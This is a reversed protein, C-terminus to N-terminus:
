STRSPYWLSTANDYCFDVFTGATTPTGGVAINGLANWPAVADFILKVCGGNGTSAFTSPATITQITTTGTIHVIDSTPAITTASAIATGVFSVYLVSAVFTARSGVKGFSAVKDGQTAFSTSTLLFINGLNDAKFYIQNGNILIGNNNIDFYSCDTNGCKLVMDNGFTLTTSTLAFKTAGAIGLNIGTTNTSGITMAGSTTLDVTNLTFVYNGTSAGGGGSTTGSSFNCLLVTTSTASCTIVDTANPTTSLTPATGGGLWTFDTGYTLTRSGTADQTILWQYTHGAKINTPNALTHNGTLTDAFTNGLAADTAISAGDTLAVLHSGQDSTFDNVHALNLSAVVSGTTPSVTLTGDSNSVSLVSGGGTGRVWGTGNWQCVDGNTTPLCTPVLADTVSSGFHLTGDTKSWLTIQSTPASTQTTLRLRSGHLAQANAISALTLLLLLALGQNLKKLM